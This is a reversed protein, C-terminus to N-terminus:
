TFLLQRQRTSPTAILEQQQVQLQLNAVFWFVVGDRHVIKRYNAIQSFGEDHFSCYARVKSM